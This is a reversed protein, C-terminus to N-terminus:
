DPWGTEPIEYRWSDYEPFDGLESPNGKYGSIVGHLFVTVLVGIAGVAIWTAVQLRTMRLGAGEFGVLLSYTMYVGMVPMMSLLLTFGLGYSDITSLTMGEGVVGEEISPRYHRIRYFPFVGYNCEAQIYGYPDSRGPEYGYGSYSRCLFWLMVLAMLAAILVTAYRVVGIRGTSRSRGPMGAQRVREIDNASDTM